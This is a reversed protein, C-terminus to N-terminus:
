RGGASKGAKRILHALMAECLEFDNIVGHRIPREAVIGEPTRGVLQRAYRGVAAGRGLVQRSDRDLAVVSPENVVIGSGAVAVLTNATGLDIAMDPRMWRRILPLM